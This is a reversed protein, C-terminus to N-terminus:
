EEITETTAGDESQGYSNTNSAVYSCFDGWPDGTYTAFTDTRCGQTITVACNFAGGGVTVAERPM